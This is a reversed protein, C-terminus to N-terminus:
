SVNIDRRGFYLMSMFLCELSVAVLVISGTADVKGALLIDAPNYYHVISILGMFEYDPIMLSISEFIFMGVIIAIMIISAKMKENIIVSLLLGISAVALFYPISTVHVMFLHGFNLEEGIAITTGYVTLM